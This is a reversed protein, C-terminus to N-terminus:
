TMNKAVYTWHWLSWWSERKNGKWKIGVEVELCVCRIIEVKAIANTGSTVAMLRPWVESCWTDPLM